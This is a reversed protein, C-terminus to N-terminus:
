DWVLWDYQKKLDSIPPKDTFIQKLDSQKETLRNIITTEAIFFEGELQKLAKPYTYQKHYAYYFYRYCLLTNRNEVLLVSRGKNQGAQKVDPKLLDHYLSRQGVIM